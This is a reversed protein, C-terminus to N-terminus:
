LIRPVIRFCRPINTEGWKLKAPMTCNRPPSFTSALASHPPPHAHWRHTFQTYTHLSIIRVPIRCHYLGLCPQGSPDISHKFQGLGSTWSKWCTYLAGYRNHPPAGNEGYKSFAGDHTAHEFSHACDECTMTSAWLHQFRVTCHMQVVRLSHHWRAKHCIQLM